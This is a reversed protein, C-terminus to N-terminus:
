LLENILDFIDKNSREHWVISPVDANAMHEEERLVAEILDKVTM